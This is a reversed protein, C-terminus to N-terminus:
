LSESGQSIAFLPVADFIIELALDIFFPVLVLVLPTRKKM